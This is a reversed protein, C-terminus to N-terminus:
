LVTGFDVCEEFRKVIYKMATVYMPNTYMATKIAKASDGVTLAEMSAGKATEKDMLVIPLIGVAAMFGFFERGEIEDLIMQESPAAVTRGGMGRAGGSLSIEDLARAMAARYTRILAVRDNMRVDIKPSTNLFYNIDIGPSSYFSMQYDVFVLDIPRGNADYKFMMNNVWLDGHNLVNMAGSPRSGNCHDKLKTMVDNKTCM